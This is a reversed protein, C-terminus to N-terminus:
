GGGRGGGGRGGHPEKADILAARRNKGKQIGEDRVWMNERGTWAKEGRKDIIGRPQVSWASLLDKTYTQMQTHTKQRAGLRTSEGSRM